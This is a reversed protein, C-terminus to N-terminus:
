RCDDVGLVLAAGVLKAVASNRSIRPLLWRGFLSRVQSGNEIGM